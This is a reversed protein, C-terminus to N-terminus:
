KQLIFSFGNIKFFNCSYLLTFLVIIKMLRKELYKLSLTYLIKILHYMNEYDNRLKQLHLFCVFLVTKMECFASVKLWVEWLISFIIIQCKIKEEYSFNYLHSINFLHKCLSKQFYLSEIINHRILNGKIVM